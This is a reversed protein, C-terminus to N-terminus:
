KKLFRRISALHGFLVIPVIFTPLWSFPFNLIAINPQDFALKQFPSPASFLALFIINMLLALCIFNWGLILKRNIKGKIFGFYAVFPASIGALIDFNRGEFTMLEPIAKNLFLWLLVLEVPIRITNLYTITTLPLSDIFQKGKNTSFLFVIVLLTPLIGLLMIKPPFSQTDTNYVNNLTLVAQLILWIVMGLLLYQAKNNFDSKKVAWYFILLTAITTLGFFLSIFIPLNQIMAIFTQIFQYCLPQRNKLSDVQCLVLNKTFAFAL